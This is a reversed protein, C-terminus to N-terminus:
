SKIQQGQKENSLASDKTYLLVDFKEVIQKLDVVVKQRTGKFTACAIGLAKNPKNPQKLFVGDGTDKEELHPAHIFYCNQFSAFAGATSPLDVAISSRVTMIKGDSFTTMKDKTTFCVEAEHLDDEEAVRLDSLEIFVYLSSHNIDM